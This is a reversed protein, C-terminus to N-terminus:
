LDLRVGRSEAEVSRMLLDFDRHMDDGMARMEAITPDHHHSEVLRRIDDQLTPVLVMCVRDDTTLMFYTITNYFRTIRTETVTPPPDNEDTWSDQIALLSSTSADGTCRL